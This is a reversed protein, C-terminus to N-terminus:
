RVTRAPAADAVSARAARDALQQTADAVANDICARIAPRRKWADGADAACITEAARTIRATIAARGANSTLDFGQTAVRVHASAEAAIAPAASAPAASGAITVLTASVAIAAAFTSRLLTM